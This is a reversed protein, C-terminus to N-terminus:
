QPACVEQLATQTLSVIMERRYRASARIDDIPRCAEGAAQAAKAFTAEDLPGEALIRQAEEAFIVTPAVATLAIKFRWGSVQQAGPLALVTVAALALDGVANRGIPLYM